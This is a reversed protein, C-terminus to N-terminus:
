DEDLSTQYEMLDYGEEFGVFDTEKDEM